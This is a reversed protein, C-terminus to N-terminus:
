DMNWLEHLPIKLGPLEPHSVIDETEGTAVLAYGNANLVFAQFTKDEPDVLWYHKVGAKRYIQLKKLCDKRRTSPSLIEVALTPAGHVGFDKIIGRRQKAIYLIDPQVVTTDGLTVDVPAYLLLGGPDTEKFYAKIIEFLMQSVFQHLISPSPDKVLEGDLVEYRYGPEEPIKLYDQYTFPKTPDTVYGTEKERITPSHLAAIVDDLRYRYQKAGLRVFPITKERTYRWITDVSLRLAAALTHATVLENGEAM